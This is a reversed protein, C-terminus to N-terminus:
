DNKGDPVLNGGDDFLIQLRPSASIRITSYDRSAFPSAFLLAYDRVHWPTPFRFNTPHDM